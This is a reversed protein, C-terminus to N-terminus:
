RGLLRDMLSKKEPLTSLQGANFSEIIYPSGAAVTTTIAVDPVISPADFIPIRINQARIYGINVTGTEPMLAIGITTYTSSQIEDSASLQFLSLSNGDKSHTFTCGSLLVMLSCALIKV